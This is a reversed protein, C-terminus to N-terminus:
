SKLSERTPLGKVESLAIPQGSGQKGWTYVGPADANTKTTTSCAATMGILTTAVGLAVFLEKMRTKDKAPM